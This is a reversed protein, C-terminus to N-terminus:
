SSSSATSTVAIVALLCLALGVFGSAALRIWHVATKQKKSLAALVTCLMIVLGISVFFYVFTLAFVSETKVQERTVAEFTADSNFDIPTTDDTDESTSEPGEFGALELAVVILTNYIWNAANVSVELASSPDAIIATANWVDTLTESVKYTQEYNESNALAQYLINTATDNITTAANLWDAATRNEWIPNVIIAENDDYTTFNWSNQQNLLVNSEEVGARWALSQAAGEVALVLFLHLPFHLFAWVQQRITGFHEEQIWDFYLMYVFYLILIASIINGIISATFQFVGSKVIVQCKEALAMVGEGLIILTLLSMRQVLHTGKFSIVRWVSSVTTAIVTELVAVVYWTIYTHNEADGDPRFTFFLGLYIMAAVFYTAATLLMPLQTKTHHRTFWLSQLYQLVLVLRSAMLILSLARFSSLSPGDGDNDDARAGVDFKPGTIAFGIMVGFQSAKAIREFVSDMSFRVDYLGVQYWTLWLICFFGIYQALTQRDNVEHVTTFVTLNAVFFLDYFLEAHTTETHRRFKPNDHLDQDNDQLELAAEERGPKSAEDDSSSASRYAFEQKPILPTQFLPLHDGAELHSM